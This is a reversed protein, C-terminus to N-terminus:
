KKTLNVVKEYEWPQNMNYFVQDLKDIEKDLLDDETNYKVHVRDLLNKIRLQDTQLCDDLTPLIAKKYVAFLPHQKGSIVPVVADYDNSEKVLKIAVLPSIFPMDCAIILNTEYKAALLGAQIGALPGKDLVKDKIIPLNLFRYAAEDNAVIIIEEFVEALINKIREINTVGDIPLLAKNTGMRSSKGGALIIAGAKM